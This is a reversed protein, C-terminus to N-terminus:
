HAFDRGRLGFGSGVGCFGYLSGGPMTAIRHRNPKKACDVVVAIRDAEGITGSGDSRPLKAAFYSGM